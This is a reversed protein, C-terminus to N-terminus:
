LGASPAVKLNIPKEAPAELIVRIAEPVPIAVPTAQRLIEVQERADAAVAAVGGTVAADIRVGIEQTAGAILAANRIAANAAEATNVKVQRLDNFMARADAMRTRHQYTMLLVAVWISTFNCMSILAAYTFTPDFHSPIM